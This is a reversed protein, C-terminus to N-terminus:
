VLTHVSPFADAPFLTVYFGCLRLVPVHPIICLVAAIRDTVTDPVVPHILSFEEAESDMCLLCLCLSVSGSTNM